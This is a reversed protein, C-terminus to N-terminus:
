SRGYQEGSSSAQNTGNKSRETHVRHGAWIMIIAIL